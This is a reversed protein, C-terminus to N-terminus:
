AIVKKLSHPKTRKISLLSPHSLSYSSLSPSFFPLSPLTFSRQQRSRYIYIHRSQKDRPISIFHTKERGREVERQRERDEEKKRKRKREIAENEKKQM